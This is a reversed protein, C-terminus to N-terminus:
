KQVRAGQQKLCLDRCKLVTLFRGFTESHCIHGSPRRKLVFPALARDCRPTASWILGGSICNHSCMVVMLAGHGLRQETNM